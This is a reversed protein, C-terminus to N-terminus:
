NNLFKIVESVTSDANKVCDGVAIGKYFNNCIFIGKFKNQFSEISEYLDTYHNNYQPIAKAWRIIKVYDPEGKVGLVSNLEDLTVRVLDKDDMETLKPSRAGGIFSTLACYGEPARGPFLSSSWLSGLIKRKEQEPILYGFGDLKHNIKSQNFGTYVVNVPPYYIERLEASLGADLKEFIESASYSPSSIVVSDFDENLLEGDKLVKLSFHRGSYENNLDISKIQSNLSVSKLIKMYIADTLTQMGKNFSFTKASQKSKEKSKKRQRASKVAGKILSGYRQELEYLRPFATKVNIMEPDGAFVGAVFPNIAYDLFEEGLRRITFEAITEYANGKSRIFPEKLLRLKASKSFLKTSLFAGPSMPLPYIKGGRLIYRKDSEKSAYIKENLINLENLLKDFLPTTELTSNPGHEVLFGDEIQTKISGGVFGNKEFLRVDIGRAKLWFATTLGSIGGGIVAVKKDPM